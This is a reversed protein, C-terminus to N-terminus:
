LLDVSIPPPNDPEKTSFSLRARERDLLARWCRYCLDHKPSAKVKGEAV